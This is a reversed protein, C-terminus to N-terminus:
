QKGLKKRANKQQEVLFDSVGMHFKEAAKTLIGDAEAHLIADNVKDLLAKENKKVGVGLPVADEAQIAIKYNAQWKSDESLKEKLPLADWSIGECRNDEFAKFLEAAGQFLVLNAGYTDVLVRQNFSNGLMGCIKVGRIDEWKSIKSNKPTIVIGSEFMYYDKTYDLVKEREPTRGLTAVILDIRGQNLLEIRNSAVVPILEIKDKSGIIKEGLYKAFDIEFGLLEGNPGLYGLPKYDNKIGIVVKGRDKIRSLQDAKSAVLGPGLLISVSLALTSITSSTKM